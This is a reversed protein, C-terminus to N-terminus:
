GKIEAFGVEAFRPVTTTPLLLEWLMMSLLVPFAVSVNECTLTVPLPNLMVPRDVDVVIAAPPLAVKSANYVGALAVPPVTLPDITRAVFPEGMCSVIGSLPAPMAAVVCSPALGELRGKPLTLRLTLVGIGVVIVFVPFEFTVIEPTDTTPAPNLALPMELPKVKCGFWVAVSVTVNSGVVSPVTEPAPTVIVLL